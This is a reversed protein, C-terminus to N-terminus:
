IEKKAFLEKKFKDNINILDMHNERGEQYVKFYIKFAEDYLKRFKSLLLKRNECFWFQIYYEEAEKKIQLESKKM